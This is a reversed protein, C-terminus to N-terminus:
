WWLGGYKKRRCTIHVQRRFGRNELCKKLSGPLSVFLLRPCVENFVRESDLELCAVSKLAENDKKLLLCPDEMFKSCTVALHHYREIM